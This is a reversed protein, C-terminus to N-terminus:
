HRFARETTMAPPRGSAEPSFLATAASHGAADPVAGVACLQGARSTGTGRAAMSLGRSLPAHSLLWFPFNVNFTPLHSPKHPFSGM